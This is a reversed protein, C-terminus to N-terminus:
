MEICVKSTDLEVGMAEPVKKLVPVSPVACLASEMIAYLESQSVIRFVWCINLSSIGSSHHSNRVRSSAPEVLGPCVTRGMPFERRRGLLDHVLSASWRNIM